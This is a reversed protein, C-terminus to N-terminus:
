ALVLYNSFYPDFKCKPPPQRSHTRSPKPHTITTTQYHKKITTPGGGRYACLTPLYSWATAAPRGPYTRLYTV